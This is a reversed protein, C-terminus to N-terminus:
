GKKPGRLKPGRLKPGRLKPGRLKKSNGRNKLKNFQKSRRIPKIFEHM